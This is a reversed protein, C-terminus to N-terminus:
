SGCGCETCQAGAVSGVARSWGYVELWVGAMLGMCLQRARRSAIGYQLQAQTQLPQVTSHQASGRSQVTTRCVLWRSNTWVATWCCICEGACGILIRDGYALWGAVCCTWGVHLDLGGEAGSTSCATCSISSRDASIVAIRVVTVATLCHGLASDTVQLSLSYSAAIDTAM